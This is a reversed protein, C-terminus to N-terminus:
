CKVAVRPSFYLSFHELVNSNKPKVIYSAKAKSSGYPELESELIGSDEAAKAIHPLSEEIAQSVEIDSPVPRLLQDGSLKKFSM